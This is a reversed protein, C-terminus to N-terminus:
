QMQSAGQGIDESITVTVLGDPNPDSIEIDLSSERTVERAGRAIAQDSSSEEQNAQGMTDALAQIVEDEFGGSVTVTLVRTMDSGTGITSLDAELHPSDTLILNEEIMEYVADTVVGEAMHHSLAPATILLAVAAAAISTLITKM